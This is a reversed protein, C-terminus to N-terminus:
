AAVKGALIEFALDDTGGDATDSLLVWGRRSEPSFGCFSHFGGTQGNHWVASGGGPLETTFWNVGVSTTEDQRATPDVGDAGPNSGDMMSRLWVSMDAATSRIGGAPAFGDMTWAGSRHGTATFGTPAHAGLRSATLPARTTSLGMPTLLRDALLDQWPAGAAHAVLQGELAVGHNSYAVTGRHVPTASLAMDVVEQADFGAYPDRRLPTRWANKAIVSQPLSPIGSTHSALERVSVEAIATGRARTGLVDQVTADLELEGREAADMVLAATFTKSASGIEFERHEDAGFGAFRVDDGDILACAVTRQASLHDALEHALDQDGTATGLAARRPGAVAGTGVLAVASVAGVGLVTRRSPRVVDSTSTTPDDSM